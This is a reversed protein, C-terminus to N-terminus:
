YDLKKTELRELSILRKVPYSGGETLFSDFRDKGAARTAVVGWTSEPELLLPILNSAAGEVPVIITGAKLTEQQVTKDLDILYTHKEEDIGDTVHKIRYTETDAQQDGKLIFMPLRHRKLLELLKTQSADFSYAAPKGVSKKVKVLPKYNPLEKYTHSWSNLEFVPFNLTPREKDPFYEMQIHSEDQDAM